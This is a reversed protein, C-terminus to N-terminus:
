LEGNIVYNQLADLSDFTHHEEEPGRLVFEENMEDWAMYVELAANHPSTGFSTVWWFQGTVEDHHPQPIEAQVETNLAWTAIRAALEIQQVNLYQLNLITM